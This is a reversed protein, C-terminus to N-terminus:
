NHSKELPIHRCRLNIAVAEKAQERTYFCGDLVFGAIVSGKVGRVAGSREHRVVLELPLGDLVHIPAPRGDAFRSPYVQGTRTDLFAPLFGQSRNGESVGGTGEFRRNQDRLQRGTLLGQVPAQPDALRNTLLSTNM